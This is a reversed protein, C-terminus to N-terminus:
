KRRVINSRRSPLENLLLSMILQEIDDDVGSEIRDNLAFFADEERTCTLLYMRLGEDIENKRIEVYFKFKNM